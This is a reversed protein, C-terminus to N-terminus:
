CVIFAFNVNVNKESKTLRKQFTKLDMYVEM